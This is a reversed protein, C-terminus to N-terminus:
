STVGNGRELNPAGSVLDSREERSGREGPPVLARRYIEIIRDIKADWSFERAVKRRAADGLRRRLEKSGHLQRISAALAAVFSEPSVPPVLIGCSEDLYDAPGGWDTAIVPLGM